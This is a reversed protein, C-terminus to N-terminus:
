GTLGRRDMVAKAMQQVESRVEGTRAMVAVDANSLGELLRKLLGRPANANRLIALRVAKSRIWRPESAILVLTEQIVMPLRAYEAVEADELGPMKLARRQDAPDASHMLAAREARGSDASRADFTMWAPLDDIRTPEDGPDDDPLHELAIELAAPDFPPDEHPRGEPEDAELSAGGTATLHIVRASYALKEGGPGTLVLQVEDGQSLGHREALVHVRHMRLVQLAKRWAIPDPLAVDVRTM